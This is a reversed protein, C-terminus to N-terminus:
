HLNHIHRGSSFQDTLAFMETVFKDYRITQYLEQIFIGHKTIQESFIHIFKIKLLKM